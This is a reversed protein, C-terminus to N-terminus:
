LAILTWVVVVIGIVVVLVVVVVGLVVMVVVVVVGVVVVAATAEGVGQSYLRHNLTAVTRNRKNYNQDIDIKSPRTGQAAQYTNNEFRYVYNPTALAAFIYKPTASTPMPKM